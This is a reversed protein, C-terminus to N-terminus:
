FTINLVRISDLTPQGGGGSNYLKFHLAGDSKLTALLSDYYEVSSDFVYQGSHPTSSGQDGGLDVYLIIANNISTDAFLLCESGRITTNIDYDIIVKTFDDSPVPIIIDSVAVPIV